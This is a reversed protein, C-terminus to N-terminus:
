IHIRALHLTPPLERHKLALIAKILGTVGAAADLHGLNAKVSGLVCFGRESTDARFIRDLARVEIPDGLPTGTGHTEIFSVERPRVGAIALATGVVEAQGAVSPATFGVKAAGDNNIAAGRIVAHITDGDAEAEELRKLVVIGVGNGPVTGQARADFPRCHGDPSLIGNEQYLYGARQPERVSVGGALALDCGYNLLSQCALVVAVLSTSCATQVDLSPGRLDLKYSVRTTLFDKDSAIAAQAGGGGVGGFNGSPLLNYLLYGNLSAGGFVGVTGGAEGGAAIERGPDYGADELAEWACELFVRHQPDLLEAERPPIGFLAADFRDAVELVGAAPVHRPDALLAPDVGAAALEERSAFSISEVGRRLNEWLEGVSAAGPFRGAMGIVAIAPL